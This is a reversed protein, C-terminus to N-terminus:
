MLQFDRLDLREFKRALAVLETKSLEIYVIYVDTYICSALGCDVMESEEKDEEELGNQSHYNATVTAQIKAAARWPM